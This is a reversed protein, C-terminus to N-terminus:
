EQPNTEDQPRKRKWRRHSWLWFEPKKMILDELAKVHLKTLEYPAFENPKDTLVEFYVEYKGRRVKIMECFIIPMDFKQAIKEVGLFVATDQNLFTTWYRIDNKAPTQDSVLGLLIPIGKKKYDIVARLTDKMPVPDGGFRKRANNMLKEFRQNTLPKYIGVPINKTISGMLAYLEWNCYHGTTMVVSKGQQYLNEFLDLNHFTCTELAKKRSAHLLIITEFFLDCFHRYFKVEIEKLEKDTKSPFSNKLNTWVVKRRYKVLYYVIVFAVDSLAYIVRSPIQAVLWTLGYFIGFFFAGM